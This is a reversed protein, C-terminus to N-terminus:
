ICSTHQNKEAAHMRHAKWTNEQRLRGKRQLLVPTICTWTICWAKVETGPIWGWAKMSTHYISKGKSSCRYILSSSVPDCLHYALRSEIGWASRQTQPHYERNINCKAKISYELNMTMDCPWLLTLPCWPDNRKESWKPESPRLCRLNKGKKKWLGWLHLGQALGPTFESWRSQVIGVGWPMVNKYSCFNFAVLGQILSRHPLHVNENGTNNTGHTAGM